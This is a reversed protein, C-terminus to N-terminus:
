LHNMANTPIKYSTSVVKASTHQIPLVWLYWSCLVVIAHLLRKIKAQGAMKLLALLPYLLNPNIQQLWLLHTLPGLPKRSDKTPQISDLFHNHFQSNKKLHQLSVSFPDQINLSPLLDSSLSAALSLLLFRALYFLFGSYIRRKDGNRWLGARWM